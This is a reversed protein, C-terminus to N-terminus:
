ANLTAGGATTGNDVRNGTWADGPATSSYYAVPGWYGFDPYYIKSFINNTFKIGSPNSHPGVNGAGGYVTYGGGALLNDNSTVNASPSFDAGIYIAATQSSPNLLTNHQILLPLGSNGNENIDELHYGNVDTLDHIYNNEITGQYVQFGDGFDYVNVNHINVANGTGYIDKVAEEGATAATTGAGRILSHEITTNNAGQLLEIGFTQSVVVRVNTITVNPADVIIPEDTTVNSLTEGATSLVIQENEVKLSSLSEGYGTNGAYPFGCSSPTSACLTTASASSAQVIAGSAATILAASIAIASLTLKRM